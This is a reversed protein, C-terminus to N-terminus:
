LWDYVRERWADPVYRALARAVRVRRGVPVRAPPEPRTAADYVRDAVDAPTTAGFLAGRTTEGRHRDYVAAYAASRDLADLERERRARFGTDVPGPEVLVVDVGPAAASLEARLADHHAEVAAKSACYAGAGPFPAHAALSSLTVITGERERLHPLAARCLRHPGAVNVDFQRALRDTPVDEVPGYQGFGANNVLCDLGDAAAERVVRSVAADDTVDLAPTHCGRDALGAADAPDRATAYVTWGADRFRRATARGLGSSSGTVLVTRDPDTM